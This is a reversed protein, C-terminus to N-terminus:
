LRRSTVSTPKRSSPAQHPQSVLSHSLALLLKLVTDTDLVPSSATGLTFAETSNIRHLLIPNRHREKGAELVAVADGHLAAGILSCGWRYYSEWWGPAMRVCDCADKLAKQVEGELLYANCRKSRFVPSRPGPDLKIAKSYAAVARRYDKADTAEEGDAFYAEADKEHTPPM